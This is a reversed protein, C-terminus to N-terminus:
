LTENRPEPSLAALAGLVAAAVTETRLTFPGLRVACFGKQEAATIEPRTLGGEPGIVFTASLVSGALAPGLPVTAEPDLVLRVGPPAAELVEELPRPPQVDPVDGRGCQRAAEVAVRRLREFAAPSTRRAVSRESLAPLIATAGLETADRVVQDLKDSKSVCQVIIAARAPVLRAARPPDLCLIVEKGASELVADAELRAEPDFVILRDGPGLRRVQTVYRGAERPLPFPGAALGTAPVRLASV